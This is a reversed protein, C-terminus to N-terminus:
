GREPQDLPPNFVSDILFDVDRRLAPADAYHLRSLGSHVDVFVLRPSVIGDSWGFEPGAGELSAAVRRVFGGVVARRVDEAVGAASLENNLDCAAVIIWSRMAAAAEQTDEVITWPM